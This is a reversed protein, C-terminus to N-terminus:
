KNGFQFTDADCLIESNLDLPNRPARTALICKEIKEIVEDSTKNEHMFAKMIEVSKFEHNEPRDFLYGTDHFWAAVYVVMMDEESLNYHGAIENVKKVVTETHDLNHFVLHSPQGTHFMETVYVETKKYISTYLAM